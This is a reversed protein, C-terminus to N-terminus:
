YHNVRHFLEIVTNVSLLVTGLFLHHNLLQRDTKSRRCSPQLNSNPEPATLIRKLRIRSDQFIWFAPGDGFATVPFIDM